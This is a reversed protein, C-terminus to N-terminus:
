KGLEDGLFRVDFDTEAFRRVLAEDATVLPLALQQSLAIYASDYATSGHKIAIGLADGILIQMAISHLRVRVLDAINAQAVEAPYAFHRVYKWLINACEVFFLNPVYFHAPADDNLHALLSHAHDSLPENLFLKIGVSADLVCDFCREGVKM